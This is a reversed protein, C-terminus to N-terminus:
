EGDPPNAHTSHAVVNCGDTEAENEVSRGDERSPGVAIMTPARNASM